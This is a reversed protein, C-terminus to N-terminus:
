QDVKSLVIYKREEYEIRLFGESIEFPLPQIQGSRMFDNFMEGFETELQESTLYKTIFIKNNKQVEYDGEFENRATTGEFGTSGFTIVIEEGAPSSMETNEIENEFRLVRWTGLLPNEAVEIERTEHLEGDILFQLIYTGAAPPDFFVPIQHTKAVQVCAVDEMTLIFNYTFTNGSVSKVVEISYCPTGTTIEVIIEQEQATISAPLVVASLNAEEISVNEEKDCSVLFFLLLPLFFQSLNKM